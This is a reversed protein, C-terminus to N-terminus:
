IADQAFHFPDIFAQVFTIVSHMPADLRTEGRPAERASLSPQLKMCGGTTSELAMGELPACALVQALADPFPWSDQFASCALM